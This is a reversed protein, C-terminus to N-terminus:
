RRNFINSGRSLRPKGIKTAGIELAHRKLPRGRKLGVGEPQPPLDIGGDYCKGGHGGRLKKIIWGVM